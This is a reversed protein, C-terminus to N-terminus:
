FGLSRCLRSNFRHVFVFTKKGQAEVCACYPHLNMNMATMEHTIYSLQTEQPFNICCNPLCLWCDNEASLAAVLGRCDLGFPEANDKIKEGIELYEYMM